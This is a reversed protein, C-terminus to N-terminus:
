KWPQWSTNRDMINNISFNLYRTNQMIEPRVIRVSRVTIPLFRTLERSNHFRTLERSDYLRASEYSDYRQAPQHSNHLPIMPPIPPIPERRDYFSCVRRDYM